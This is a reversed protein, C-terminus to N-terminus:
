PTEKARRFPETVYLSDPVAGEITKSARFIDAMSKFTAVTEPTMSAIYIEDWLRAYSTADKADLNSAAKLMEAAKATEKAGFQTAAIMGRVLNVVANPNS